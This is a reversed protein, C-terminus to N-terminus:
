RFIFYLIVAVVAVVSTIVQVSSILRLIEIFPGEEQPEKDSRPESM